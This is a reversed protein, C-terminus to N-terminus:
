IGSSYNGQVIDPFLSTSGSYAIVGSSFLVFTVKLIGGSASQDQVEWDAFWHNVPVGADLTTVLYSTNGNGQNQYESFNDKGSDSFGYDMSWAITVLYQSQGSIKPTCGTCSVTLIGSSNTPGVTTQEITSTQTSSTSATIQSVSAPVTITETVQFAGITTTTTVTSVSQRQLYLSTLYSSGIAVTVIIAITLITSLVNNSSSSRKEPPSDSPPAAM